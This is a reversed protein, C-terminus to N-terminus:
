MPQIAPSPFNPDTSSSRDVTIPLHEPSSAEVEGLEITSVDAWRVASAERDGRSAHQSLGAAPCAPPAEGNSRTSTRKAVRALWSRELSAAASSAQATATLSRRARRSAEKLRTALTAAPTSAAAATALAATCVHGAVIDQMFPTSPWKGYLPAFMRLDYLDSPCEKLYTGFPAATSALPIVREFGERRRGGSSGGSAGGTTRGMQCTSVRMAGFRDAPKAAPQTAASPLSASDECVVALSSRRRSLRDFLDVHWRRARQAKANVAPADLDASPASPSPPPSSPPLARPPDAGQSGAPSGKARVASVGRAPHAESWSAYARRRQPSLAEIADEDLTGHPSGTLLLCLAEDVLTANQFFGPCLLLLFHAHEPHGAPPVKSYAAAGYRDAIVGVVTDYVSAGGGGPQPIRRYEESIYVCLAGAAHGDAPLRKERGLRLPRVPKWQLQQLTPEFAGPEDVARHTTSCSTRRAHSARRISAAVSGTAAPAPPPTPPSPLPPPFKSTRSGRATVIPATPAGIGWGTPQTAAAAAAAHAAAAAAAAALAPTASSREYRSLRRGDPLRELRAHEAVVAEAVRQLAARRLHRERHWEVYGGRVPDRVRGILELMARSMEEDEGSLPPLTGHTPVLLPQGGGGAAAAASAAAAQRRAHVFREHELTLSEVTPAGKDDDTELLVLMAKRQRYAEALERRCNASSLYDRTLVILVCESASIYGELKAISDLDDVDLFVACGPLMTHMSSKLVGAQDQGWRWVHSLFVHFGEPAAESKTLPPGLVVPTGDDAHTLRLQDTARRARAIARMGLAVVTLLIAANLGVLFTGVAGSQVTQILSARPVYLAASTYTLMLLLALSTHIAQCLSDAFPRLSISVVAFFVSVVMGFWLQLMTGPAVLLIVGTLLLKRLLEVAEFYACKPRYSQTLLELRERVDPPAHEARMTLLYFALPVGLSFVALSLAALAAFPLWTSSGVVQSTDAALYTTCVTSSGSAECLEAGDFTALAKLSVTPYLLLIAWICLNCLQPSRTTLHVWARFSLKNPLPRERHIAAALETGGRGGGGKIDRVRQASTEWGHRREQQLHWSDDGSSSASSSETAIEVQVLDAGIDKAAAEAGASTSPARPWWRGCRGLMSRPSAHRAAVRQACAVYLAAAVALLLLLAACLWPLMTYAVLSPYFGEHERYLCPLPMLEDFIGLNFIPLESVGHMFQYLVTPWEVQHYRVFVVVCQGHSLVIKILTPARQGVARWFSGFAEQWAPPALGRDHHSSRWGHTGGGGAAPPIATTSGGRNAPSRQRARVGRAVYTLAATCALLALTTYIGVSAGPAREPCRQCTRVGRYYHEDCVGCLPGHAGERCSADGSSNRADGGLCNAPLPCRSATVPFALAGSGAAASANYPPASPPPTSLEETTLLHRRAPTALLSNPDALAPIYFGASVVLRSADSCDVSGDTACPDCRSQGDFPQVEGPFCKACTALPPYLPSIDAENSKYGAACPVCSAVSTHEHGWPCAQQVVTFWPPSPPPM